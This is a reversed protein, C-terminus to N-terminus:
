IENGKNWWVGKGHSKCCQMSYIEGQEILGPEIYSSTLKNNILQIMASLWNM